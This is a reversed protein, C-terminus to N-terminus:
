LPLVAFPSIRRGGGADRRRCRRERRSGADEQTREANEQSYQTKLGEACDEDFSGWDTSSADFGYSGTTPKLLSM